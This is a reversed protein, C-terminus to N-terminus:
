SVEMGETRTNREAQRAILSQAAALGIVTGGLSLAVSLFLYIAVRRASGQQWLTVLEYSFTSFTTYGGCFGVTLMARAEASVSTGEVLYRMLFGLLLSGTVNVVLTWIPFETGSSRQIVGSLLYRAVGGAASGAAVYWIM